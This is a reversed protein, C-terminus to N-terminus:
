LLWWASVAGSLSLLSLTRLERERRCLLYAFTGWCLPLLCVVLAMQNINSTPLGRVLAICCLASVLGAGALALLLLGHYALQRPRPWALSRSPMAITTHRRWDGTGAIWLWALLAPIALSITIGLENGLAHAWPLAAVFLLGWALPAQWRQRRHRWYYYLLAIASSQLLLALLLAAAASPAGPM